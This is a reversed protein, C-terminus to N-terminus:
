LPRPHWTLAAAVFRNDVGQMLFHNDVGHMLDFASLFEGSEAASEADGLM